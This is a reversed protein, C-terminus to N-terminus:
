FKFKNVLVALSEARKVLALNVNQTEETSHSSETALDNIRVMSQSIAAAVSSQERAAQAIQLGYKSVSAGSLGINDLANGAAKAQVVCAEAQKTGQYIAQSVDSAAAQVEGIIQHIESTAQQTRSALQRVEDAVVAFGRGHEGARAAEIAANLALLNTQEAVASITEIVKGINQSGTDLRSIVTLMGNMQQSLSNIAKITQAVEEQGKLTQAQAEKSASLTAEAHEAVEVSSSAMQNSASAVQDTEALQADALQRSQQSNSLMQDASSALNSATEAVEGIVEALTQTHQNFAAFLSGLEDKYKVSLRLTLDNEMTKLRKVSKAIPNVVSRQIQWAITIGMGLMLLVLLGMFMWAAYTATAVQAKIIRAPEGLLHVGIQRGGADTIPLSTAFWHETLYSKKNDASTLTLSAAFDRARQNFWGNNALLYNGIAHNKAIGPSDAVLEKNLLMIYAQGDTEFDRSVSGVGQLVELSGLYQDNYFIPAIGRISFGARGTEDSNTFPRKEAIVKRITPRFLLDDGYFDPSWNRLWSKGEATHIQIKLGRYNTNEAFNKVLDNIADLAENRVDAHLYEKILQNSALMVALGLGFEEKAKIRENLILQLNESRDQMAENALDNRHNLTFLLGFVLFVSGSLIITALLKQRLTLSQFM